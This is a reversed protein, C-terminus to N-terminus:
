GQGEGTRPSAPRAFADVDNVTVSSPASRPRAAFGAVFVDASESGTRRRLFLTVDPLVNWDRMFYEASGSEQMWAVAEALGWGDPAGDPWFEEPALTFEGSIQIEITMPETKSETEEGM